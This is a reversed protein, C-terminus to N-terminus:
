PKALRRGRGTARSALRRRLAALEAIAADVEGLVADVHQRQGAILSTRALARVHLGIAAVSNGLDHLLGRVPEGAAGDQGPSVPLPGLAQHAPARRSGARLGRKSANKNVTM